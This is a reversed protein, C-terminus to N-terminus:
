GWRLKLNVADEEDTFIFFFVAVSNRYMDIGMGWYGTINDLVWQIVENYKEVPVEICDLEIINDFEKKVWDYYRIGDYYGLFKSFRGSNLYEEEEHIEFIKSYNPSGQGYWVRKTLYCKDKYKSGIWSEDM